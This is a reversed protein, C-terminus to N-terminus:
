APPASRSRAARVSGLPLRVDPKLSWWTTSMVMMPAPGDAEGGRVVRAGRAETRITSAEALEAALHGRDVLLVDVVDGAMRLDLALREDVEADLLAELEAGLDEEGLLHLVELADAAALLM